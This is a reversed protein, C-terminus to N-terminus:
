WRVTGDKEVTFDLEKLIVKKEADTIDTRKKLYELIEHNYTDDAPYQYKFLILKEEYDVDLSDIYEIVKQKKSGPINKGDKDKDATIGKLGQRYDWYRRIPIDLM